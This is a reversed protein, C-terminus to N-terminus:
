NSSEFSHTTALTGNSEKAWVSHGLYWLWSASAVLNISCRHNSVFPNSLLFLPPTLSFSIGTRYSHLRLITDLSLPPNHTRGAPGYTDNVLVLCGSDLWGHPIPATWSSRRWLLWQPAGGGFAPLWQWSVIVVMGIGLRIDHM